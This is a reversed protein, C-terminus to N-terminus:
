DCTDCKGNLSTSVFCTPCLPGTPGASGRAQSEREASSRRSVCDRCPPMNRMQEETALQPSGRITGDDFKFHGCDLDHRKRPAQGTAVGNMDVPPVVYRIEPHSIMDMEVGKAPTQGVCTLGFTSLSRKGESPCRRQGSRNQDTSKKGGRRSRVPSRSM